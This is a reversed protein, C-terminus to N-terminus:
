KRCKLRAAEQCFINIIAANNHEIQHSLHQYKCNTLLNMLSSQDPFLRSQVIQLKVNNEIQLQKLNKERPSVICIETTKRTKGRCSEVINNSNPCREKKKIYQQM